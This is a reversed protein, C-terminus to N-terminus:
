RKTFWFWASASEWEQSGEERKLLSFSNILEEEDSKSLGLPGKGGDSFFTYLMFMGGKRLHQNVNNRYDEKQAFSLSHYCGIDLILDYPGDFFKNNSVDGVFLKANLKAGKIKRKAIRIAKPVFDIGSVDWGAKALRLVNTGTGCGLDIARGPEHVAIYAELEPPSIGSDWPPTSLYRSRFKLNRFIKKLM